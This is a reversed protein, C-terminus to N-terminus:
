WTIPGADGTAIDYVYRTLTALDRGYLHLSYAIDDGHNAVAHITDSPMEVVDGPGIARREFQELPGHRRMGDGPHRWLANTEVGAIGAVIAWTAHDHPGVEAGPRWGCLWLNIGGDDDRHLAVEGHGEAENWDIEFNGVLKASRAFRACRHSLRELIQRESTARALVDEIERIFTEVGSM